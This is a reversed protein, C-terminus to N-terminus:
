KKLERRINEIHKAADEKQMSLKASLRKIEVSANPIYKRLENLQKRTQAIEESRKLIIEHINSM